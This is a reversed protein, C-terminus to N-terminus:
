LRLTQFKTAKSHHWPVRFGGEAMQAQGLIQPWWRVLREAQHWFTQGSWQRDLVFITHGAQRLALREADNNKTFRDISLIVWKGDLSSIWELDPTSAPFRHRLHIVTRVSPETKSLERIACAIFPSINNDFFVNM